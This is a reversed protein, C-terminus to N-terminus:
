ETVQCARDRLWSLPMLGHKHALQAMILVATKDARGTILNFAEGRILRDVEDCLLKFKESSNTRNTVPDVTWDAELLAMRVFIPRAARAAAKAFDEHTRPVRPFATAVLVAEVAEDLGAVEGPSPTVDAIPEDVPNHHGAGIGSRPCDDDPSHIGTLSPCSIHHGISTFPHYGNNWPCLCSGSPAEEDFDVPQTVGHDHDAAAPTDGPKAERWTGVAAVLRFDGGRWWEPNSPNGHADDRFNVMAEAARVVTLAADRDATLGDVLGQLHANENTLTTRQDLLEQERGLLSRIGVQAEDREGQVEEIRRYLNNRIENVTDRQLTVEALSARAADLDRQDAHGSCLARSDSLQDKLIAVEVLLVPVDALSAFLMSMDRNDHDLVAERRRQIAEVDIETM